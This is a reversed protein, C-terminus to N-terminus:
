GRASTEIRETWRVKVEVPNGLEREMKRALPGVAPPQKPGAVDVTIREEDGALLGEPRSVNIQSAQLNTNDLWDDVVEQAVKDDRQDRIEGYTHLGLPVAVVLVAVSAIVIGVMIRREAQIIQARPAFGTLIFVVAGILIIATLNTLYLLLAGVSLDPRGLALTAGVTTLPPVLAVAVAVGPLADSVERRILAYAGAAGAALAIGLDLLTPETRALMEDPISLFELPMIATAAWALFVSGASAVAVLLFSAGQRVPRGTVLTAAIGLVPRMLPAVLMAGIIVAASNTILGFLAILVSLSQLVAFRYLYNRLAPGEPLLEEIVEQRREPTLDVALDVLRRWWWPRQPTSQEGENQDEPNPQNQETGQSM